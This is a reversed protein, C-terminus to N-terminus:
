NRFPPILAIGLGTIKFYLSYFSIEDWSIINYFEDLM